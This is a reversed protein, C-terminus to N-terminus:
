FPFTRPYSAIPGALGPTAWPAAPHLAPSVPLGAFIERSSPSPVSLPGLRDALRPLFPSARAHSPRSVRPAMNAPPAAHQFPNSRPTRPQPTSTPRARPPALSFSHASAPSNPRHPFLAPTRAHTSSRRSPGRPHSFALQQTPRFPSLRQSATSPRSSRPSPLLFRHAAPNLQGPKPSSHLPTPGRLFFSSRAATSTEPGFQILQQTPKPKRFPKPKRNRADVM